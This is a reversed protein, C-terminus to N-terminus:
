EVLRSIWFSDDTWSFLNSQKLRYQKRRLHGGPLSNPAWPGQTSVPHHYCEQDERWHAPRWEKGSGQLPHYYCFYFLWGPDDLLDCSFLRHHQFNQHKRTSSSCSSILFFLFMNEKLHMVMEKVIISKLSLSHWGMFWSHSSLIIESPLELWNTTSEVCVQYCPWMHSVAVCVFWTNAM